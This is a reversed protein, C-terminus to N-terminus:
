KAATVEKWDDLAASWEYVVGDRETRMGAQASRIQRGDPLTLYKPKQPRM